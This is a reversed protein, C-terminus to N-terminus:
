SDGDSEGRMRVVSAYHVVVGTVTSNYEEVVYCVSCLVFVDVCRVVCDNGM